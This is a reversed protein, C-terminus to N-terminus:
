WELTSNKYASMQSGDHRFYIVYQKSDGVDFDVFRPNYGQEVLIKKVLDHSM